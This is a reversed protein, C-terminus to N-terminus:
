SHFIMKLQFLQNNIVEIEFFRPTDIAFCALVLVVMYYRLKRFRASVNSHCIGLYREVAILM